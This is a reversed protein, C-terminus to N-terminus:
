APCFTEYTGDDYFVRIEKIKRACTETKAVFASQEIKRNREKPMRPSVAPTSTAAPRESPREVPLEIGFFTDAPHGLGSAPVKETATPASADEAESPASAGVIMNGEGFMLWNTSIEPFARHIAMVHNSTPNTAGRFVNSLSAESIELKAAFERQSLKAREMIMRIRDKTEM